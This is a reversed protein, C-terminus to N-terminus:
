FESEGRESFDDSKADSSSAQTQRITCRTPNSNQRINYGICEGHTNEVSGYSCTELEYEQQSSQRFLAAVGSVLLCKWSHIQWKLVGAVKLNERLYHECLFIPL